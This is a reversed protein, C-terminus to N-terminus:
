FTGILLVFFLNSTKTQKHSYHSTECHYVVYMYQKPGKPLNRKRFLATTCQRTASLVIPTSTYLVTVETKQNRRNWIVYYESEKFM